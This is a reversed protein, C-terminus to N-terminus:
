LNHKVDYDIARSEDNRIFDKDEAEKYLVSFFYSKRNTIDSRVENRLFTLLKNM